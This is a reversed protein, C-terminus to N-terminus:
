ALNTEVQNCLVVCWMVVYIHPQLAPSFNLLGSFLSVSVSLCAFGFHFLHSWFQHMLPTLSSKCGDASLKIAISLLFLRLQPESLVRVSKQTKRGGKEWEQYTGSQFCADSGHYHIIKQLQECSLSMKLNWSSHPMSVHSSHLEGVTQVTRPKMVATYMNSPLLCNVSSTMGPYVSVKTLRNLYESSLKREVKKAEPSFCRCVDFMVNKSWCQIVISLLPNHKDDLPM